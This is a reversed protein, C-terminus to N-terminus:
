HDGRRPGYGEQLISLIPGPFPRVIVDLFGGPRQCIAFNEKKRERLQQQHGYHEKDRSRVLAEILNTPSVRAASVCVSEGGDRRRGGGLGFFRLGKRECVVKRRSTRIVVMAAIAQCWQVVFELSEYWVQCAVEVATFYEKSAV